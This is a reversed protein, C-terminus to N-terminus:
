EGAGDLGISKDLQFQERINEVQAADIYGGKQMVQLLGRVGEIKKLTARANVQGEPGEGFRDVQLSWRRMVNVLAPGGGEPMGWLTIEYETVPGKPPRGKQVIVNHTKQVHIGM